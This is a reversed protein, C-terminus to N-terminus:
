CTAPMLLLNYHEASKMGLPSPLLINELCHCVIFFFFFFCKHCIKGEQASRKSEVSKVKESLRCKPNPPFLHVFHRYNHQIWHSPSVWRSEVTDVLRPNDYHVPFIFFCVFQIYYPAKLHSCFLLTVIGSFPDCMVPFLGSSPRIMIFLHYTQNVATRRKVGDNFVATLKKLTIWHSRQAASRVFQCVSSLSPLFLRHQLPKSSFHYSLCLLLVLLVNIHRQTEHWQM